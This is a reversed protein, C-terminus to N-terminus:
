QNKMELHIQMTYPMMAGSPNGGPLAWDEAVVPDLYATPELNSLSDKAKEDSRAARAKARLERAERLKRDREDFIAQKEWNKSTSSASATSIM